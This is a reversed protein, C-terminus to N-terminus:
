ARVGKDAPAKVTIEFQGIIFSSVITTLLSFIIRGMPIYLLSMTLVLADTLFYIKSINLNLKNSLVLALADDGGAACAQSVVLGCGVGIGIGGILASVIPFNYLSPVIAGTTLFIKYFIAFSVCAVATRKLFRKGFFSVGLSFCAFDLIPSIIAPDFNFLKYLLMTLGLVGGETISSQMHINVLTFSMICSGIIIRVVGKRSLEFFNLFQNLM